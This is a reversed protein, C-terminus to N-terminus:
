FGVPYINLHTGFAVAFLLYALGTITAGILARVLFQNNAHSFLWLICNSYLFTAIVFGAPKFLAIYGLTALFLAIPKLKEKINDKDLTDEGDEDSREATKMDRFIIIALCTITIIVLLQPLFQTGILGEDFLSRINPIGLAYLITLILLGVSLGHHRVFKTIKSM